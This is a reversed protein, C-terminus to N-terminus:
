RTTRSISGRSRNPGVSNSRHSSSVCSLLSRALREWALRRAAMRADGWMGGQVSTTISPAQGQGKKGPHQPTKTGQARSDPGEPTRVRTTEGAQSGGRSTDARGDGEAEQTPGRTSAHGEEPQGQTEQHNGQPPPTTSKKHTGRRNPEEFSFSDVFVQRKPSNMGIADVDGEVVASQHGVSPQDQRGRQGKWRPRGSVPQGAASPGPGRGLGQRETTLRSLTNDIGM